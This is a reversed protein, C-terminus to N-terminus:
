LERIGLLPQLKDLPFVPGDSCVLYQRLQCHGCLGVGCRMNREMSLRIRHSPVGRMLLANAVFRMMVEPGCVLALTNRPDFPASPILDTVLGVRGVWSTSARDVTVAVHVGAAPWAALDGGYLLDDPTRAGYLLNIRGYKEREGILELVAPRLPALGIGGGIVVVDGGEADTVDWGVGYPGRVGVVDGPAANCFAKTVGGADRMTHVLRDPRGPHGSISIPAEGVGFAQLMTFQGSKFILGEGDLPAFEISATDHTDWHHTVVEFPRPVMPDATRLDANVASPEASM